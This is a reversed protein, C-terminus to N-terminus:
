EANMSRLKTMFLRLENELLNLTEEGALVATKMKQWQLDFTYIHRFVHRLSLYDKLRIGMEVSIVAPRQAIDEQMKELLEMHWVDGKEPSGEFSIAIRLFIKEIGNYFAQLFNGFSGMEFYDPERGRFTKIKPAYLSLLKHLLSLELEIEAFVKNSM